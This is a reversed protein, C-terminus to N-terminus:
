ESGIKVWIFLFFCSILCLLFFSFIVCLRVQILHSCVSACAKGQCCAPWFGRKIRGGRPQGWGRFHHSHGSCQLVGRERERSEASAGGLIHSSSETLNQKDLKVTWVSKFLSVMMHSYTIFLDNSLHQFNNNFTRSWVYVTARQAERCISNWNLSIPMKLIKWTSAFIFVCAFILTPTLTLLM